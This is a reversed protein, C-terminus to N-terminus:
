PFARARCTVAHASLFTRPVTGLSLGTSVHLADCSADRELTARSRVFRVRGVRRGRGNAGNARANQKLASAAERHTRQLHAVLRSACPPSIRAREGRTFQKRRRVVCWVVASVAVAAVVVMAGMAGTKVGNAEGTAGDNGGGSGNGGDDEGFVVAASSELTPTQVLPATPQPLATSSMASPAMSPWRPDVAM